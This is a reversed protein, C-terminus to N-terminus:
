DDDEERIHTGGTSTMIGHEDFERGCRGCKHCSIWVDNNQCEEAPTYDFIYGGEVIFEM